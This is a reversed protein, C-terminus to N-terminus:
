SGNSLVEARIPLPAGLWVAHLLHDDRARGTNPHVLISLEQHNLALWPVLSAFLACDFAVQYMPASHPGVLQDHVRGMRPAYAAFEAEIATRLALAHTREQPTRFYVHAHYDRIADTGLRPM